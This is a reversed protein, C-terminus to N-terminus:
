VKTIPVPPLSYLQKILRGAPEGRRKALPDVTIFVGGIDPLMRHLSGKRAYRTQLQWCPLIAGQKSAHELSIFFHVHSRLLIDAKPVGKSEDKGAMASWQMERDLATARYFGTTGGIAHACEVIVGSVDLWLVERVLRGAGVSSYRRAGFLAAVDEEAEGNEGTHYKTGQVFFFKCDSRVAKKLLTLVEIAAAKQDVMSRLSLGLGGEKRQIGEVLDGNVIVIDPDYKGTRSAFDVWCEWLYQQAKNLSLVIDDSTIFDPPALGFVSGVHLDGIVCLRKTKM